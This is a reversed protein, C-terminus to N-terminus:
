FIDLELFSMFTDNNPNEPFTWNVFHFLNVDYRPRIFKVEKMAMHIHYNHSIKKIHFNQWKLGIEKIKAMEYISCKWFIVFYSQNMPGNRLNSIKLYKYRHKPWKTFQVNVSFRARVNTWKTSQVIEPISLYPSVYDM